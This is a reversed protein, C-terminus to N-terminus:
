LNKLNKSFTEKKVTPNAAEEQYHDRRHDKSQGQFQTSHFEQAKSQAEFQFTILSSIKM